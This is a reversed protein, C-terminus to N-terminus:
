LAAAGEAVDTLPGQCALAGARGPVAAMVVAHRPLADRDLRDYLERMACLTYGQGRWGDLLREFIPLLRMGELEAHLTFVHASGTPERTLKLLRKAAQAGDMGDVGILEDLTPLTTPLQPCSIARGNVFPLFPHTGRTDSAYEFATDELEFAAGNMQWGAAGHVRPRAGFVEHFADIGARLERETWADDSRAVFDQWKVHDYTHLGVEFGAGAAARM